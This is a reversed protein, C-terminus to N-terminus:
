KFDFDGWNHRIIGSDLAFSLYREDINSLSVDVNLKLQILEYSTINYIIFICPYIVFCLIKLLSLQTM